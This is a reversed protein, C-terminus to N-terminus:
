SSYGRSDWDRQEADEEEELPELSRKTPLLQSRNQMRQKLFKRRRACAAGLSLSGRSVATSEEPATSEAGATKPVAQPHRELAWTGIYHRGM